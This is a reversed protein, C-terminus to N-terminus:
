CLTCIYLSRWIKLDLNQLVKSQIDNARQDHM